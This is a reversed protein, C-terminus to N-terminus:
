TLCPVTVFRDPRNAITAPVGFWAPDVGYYRDYFANVRKEIHADVPPAAHYARGWTVNLAEGDRVVLTGDKFVLHAHAFMATKNKQETYVAVDAVAGPALHGRDKLGLLRAPGARTVIALESLSFERNLAALNSVARASQPLTELWRAREERDMLLHFIEPYRVFLAGNPHDTSFQVRWLDEALLFIELGVSWQVANAFSRARYNYPVIGTGNGDGQDIAWKYPSAARRGDFQRMIDGSVTCTQGFMVQGVDITVNRHANVAEMLQPAGSSLGQEGEAGYGYFQIHALHIPLGETAGITAIATTVNGALGLNNCH